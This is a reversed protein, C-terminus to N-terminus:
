LPHTLRWWLTPAALDKSLVLDSAEKRGQFDLSISGVTSKAKSLPTVASTTTLAPLTTGAWTITDINKSAVVPSSSGWDTSVTGVNQGARVVHLTQFQSPTSQILPLTDRLASALDPAAMVATIVRITRGGVAVDAAGLFCGGAEDTNGTKIGFVGSQGLLKNTNYVTSIGPIVASQQSIVQTIVPKDLAADGLKVLDSATSVTLKSFGSADTIKTGNMHLSRAYSNAYTTYADMSGFAWTALSDAINNASPLLLTQIAQYETMTDGASVQVASGDMAIYKAYLAADAATFTITPGQEGPELPKQQLVALVTMVKATSATPTPTEITSSSALLGYGDAGYASQEASGSKPWPINVTVQAPVVPPTLVTNPAPLPRLAAYLTYGGILLVLCIILALPKFERRRRAPKPIPRSNYAHYM